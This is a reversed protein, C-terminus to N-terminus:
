GAEKKPLCHNDKYNYGIGRIRSNYLDMYEYEKRFSEGIKIEDLIEITYDEGFDDFDKQMDEVSHRGSRLASLHLKIRRDFKSTRGIYMRGTVNHTIKYIVRQKNPYGGM